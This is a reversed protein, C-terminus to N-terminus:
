QSNRNLYNVAKHHMQIIVQRINVINQGIAINQNKNHLKTAREKVYRVDKKVNM